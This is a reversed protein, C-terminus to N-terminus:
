FYKLYKNFYENLSKEKIKNFVIKVYDPHYLYLNNVMHYLILLNDNEEIEHKSLSNM